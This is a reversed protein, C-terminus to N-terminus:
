RAVGERDLALDFATFTAIAVAAIHQRGREDLTAGHRALADVFTTWMAGVREGYMRLYGVPAADAPERGFLQRVIIEGGLHSGLLVYGAGLADGMTDIAPVAPWPAALSAGLLHLDRALLRRREGAEGAVFVSGLRLALPVELPGVLASTARLFRTYGARDALPGRLRADLAAHMPWTYQRLLQLLADDTGRSATATSVVRSPTPENM